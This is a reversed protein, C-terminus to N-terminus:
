NRGSIWVASAARHCFVPEGGSSRLNPDQQPGPQPDPASRGDAASINRTQIGGRARRHRLPLTGMHRAPATTRNGILEIGREIPRKAAKM